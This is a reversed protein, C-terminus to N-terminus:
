SLNELIMLCSNSETWIATGGSVLLALCSDEDDVTIVTLALADYAVGVLVLTSSFVIAVAILSRSSDIEM